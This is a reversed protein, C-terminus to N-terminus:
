TLRVGIKMITEIIFLPGSRFLLQYTYKNAGEREGTKLIFHISIRAGFWAIGLIIKSQPSLTSLKPKNKLNNQTEIKTLSAHIARGGLPRFPVLLRLCVRDRGIPPRYVSM